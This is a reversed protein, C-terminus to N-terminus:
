GDVGPRWADAVHTICWGGPDEGRAEVSVADFRIGGAVPNSRIWGRAAIEVDRRKRATIASLPHGLDSSRRGKVEVFVVIGDAEAVLDVERRGFRYNRALIRYGAGRLYRAAEEEYRRGRAVSSTSGAVDSEM